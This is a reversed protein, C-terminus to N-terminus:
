KGGELYTFIWNKYGSMPPKLFVPVGNPLDFHSGLGAYKQVALFVGGHSVILVPGPHDLSQNIGSLARILFDNYSDAEPIDVGDMWDKLWSGKISGEKEGWGCEILNPIEVLTGGIQTNVIEATDRCRSLPSFCITRIPSENKLISAALEAQKIGTSNLPVDKQGMGRRDRNWDTEGHRM